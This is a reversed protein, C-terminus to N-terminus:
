LGLRVGITYTKPNPIVGFEQGIQASNGPNDIEPDYGKYPTITFLNQGSVYVELSNVKITRLYAAPVHYSISLNKLRCYSSNYVYRSSNNYNHGTNSWAPNETQHDPTWLNEPVAEAITANKMDGLGGWLYALTQSFVQSGQQGQFMFSLTFAKYSLDNIWGYTFNPEANGLDEYDASSYTHDGNVDEYRADGPKAGFQAAESAQSTKWTGLFKYGYFEGLPKGVELIANVTNNGGGYVVNNLSGLSTLKNRNLSFTANTYWKFDKSSFPTGGVALELGKNTMTGINAQYNGSNDYGTAPESFLLNSIKNKYVDADVTLRGQLFAMNLGIDYASKTEWKLSTSVGTGLPTAVSPNGASGPTGGNYYYNGQNSPTLIQAITSYAGVAQNGTQGYTARIRLDSFLKNNKMFDENMVNWSIGVSPFSSYKQVLHSSGDDRISATLFYKDKYSYNIRGLYSVLSEQYYSSSNTQSGGLALNYYGLGWNSLSAARALFDMGTDGSVEYLGTATITHDGFKHKYTLYNSTQYGHSRSTENNIYGSGSDYNSTGPGYFRQLYNQGMSYVNTTTFTLDNIINYTLTATANLNTAIGDDAQNMAQEVPNFQISAYQAHSIYAGSADKIPSTPAWEVAQNFPDGLGGGYSNNHNQPIAASLIIKLNMKDNLKADLNSKFNARKYYTNIITGPQDLYGFSVRYKVNDSGGSVAVDYYQVWSKQFLARQWDTGADPHSKYYDLQDQTFADTSGTSEFQNNVSRAFDYPGMLDLMKPMQDNQVWANFDIKTKGAHGSKTTVLVVGNSGRSGYIATSAADKLVEISEIDNPDDPAPGINGDTVYLPQTNGTISNAGRIYIRPGSGPQGNASTVAVGSVTGQLVQGVQTVPRRAVEKASISSSSGTVETRKQTGYGVAVVENLQTAQEEMVVALIAQGNYTVTQQKFGTYTFRLVAGNDLSLKFAGNVDTVTGTQTGQVVISVGILPDGNSDKVTGTVVTAPSASVSRDSKALAFVAYSGFTMCCLLLMFLLRKM